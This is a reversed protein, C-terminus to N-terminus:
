RAAASRRFRKKKGGTIRRVALGVLLLAVVGVGALVMPDLYWPDPEVNSMPLPLRPRSPASLMTAAAAGLQAAESAAASVPPEGSLAPPVPRAGVPTAAPAVTVGAERLEARLVTLKREREEILRNLGQVISELQQIRSRSEAMAAEFAVTENAARSAADLQKGRGTGGAALKLRDGRRVTVAAPAGRDSSKARLAQEAVEPPLARMQDADPIQLVAGVRPRYLSGDFASPNSRQLAMVAQAETVDAPRLGNAISAATDGRKVTVTDPRPREAAESWSAGPAPVRLPADVSTAPTPPPLTFSTPGSPMPAPMIQATSPLTVAAPLPPLAEVPPEDSPPEMGAPEPNLTVPPLPPLPTAAPADRGPAAAAPPPVTRVEAPQEQADLDLRYSRLHRGTTTSLSMVVILEPADTPVTGQVRIVLRGDADRRSMTVTANRLAPPFTLGLDRYTEPSVIAPEAAVSTGEPDEVEIEARFPKGRESFVTLPGLRVAHAPDLISLGAALALIVVAFRILRDSPM